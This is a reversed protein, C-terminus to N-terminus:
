LDEWPEDLNLGKLNGSDYFAQLHLHINVRAAINSSVSNVGLAASSAAGKIMEEGWLGMPYSAIWEPSQTIAAAADMFSWNMEKSRAFLWGDKIPYDIRPLPTSGGDYTRPRTSAWDGYVFTRRNFRRRMRTLLDHNSFPDLFTREISVFSTRMSTASLVVPVDQQLEELENGVIRTFWEELALVDKAWGGDLVVFFDTTGFVNLVQVIGALDPPPRSKEVRLVFTRGTEQCWSIQRAVDATGAGHLQLVPSANPYADLFGLWNAYADTPEKLRLFSAQAPGDSGAQYDRDIDIAFPRKGFAAAIKEMGKTLELANPWPALLFLPQLRDKTPGPLKDLGKMESSRLALTPVYSLHRPDLQM